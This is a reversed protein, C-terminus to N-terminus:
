LLAMASSYRSTEQEAQVQNGNGQQRLTARGGAFSVSQTLQAANDNGTQVVEALGGGRQEVTVRNGDGTSTARLDNGGFGAQRVSYVNLDGAQSLYASAANGRQELELGNGAGGGTQTIEAYHNGNELQTVVIQQNSGEQFIQLGNGSSTQAIRAQAGFAQRQELTTRNDDGSQLQEVSNARGGSQNLTAQNDNGTQTLTISQEVAFAPAALGALLAALLTPTKM